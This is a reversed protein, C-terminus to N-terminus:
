VRSGQQIFTFKREVHDEGSRSSGAAHLGEPGVSRGYQDRARRYGIIIRINDFMQKM